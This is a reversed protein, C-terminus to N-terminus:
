PKDTWSYGGVDTYHKGKHGMPANCIRLRDPSDQCCPPVPVHQYKKRFNKNM